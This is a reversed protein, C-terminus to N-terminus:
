SARAGKQLGTRGLVAGCTPHIASSAIGKMGVPDEGYGKDHYFPKGPSIIVPDFVEGAELFLHSRSVKRHRDSSNM